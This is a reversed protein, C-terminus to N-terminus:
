FKIKEAFQSAKLDGVDQLTGASGVRRMTRADVNKKSGRPYDEDIRMSIEHKIFTSSDDDYSKDKKIHIFVEIFVDDMDHNVAKRTEISYDGITERKVGLGESMGNYQRVAAEEIEKPFETYHAHITEEYETGEYGGWENLFAENDEHAYIFDHRGTTPETYSFDPNISGDRKKNSRWVKLQNIPLLYNRNMVEDYIGKVTNAKLIYQWSM